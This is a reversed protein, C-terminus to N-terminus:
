YLSWAEIGTDFLTMLREGDESSYSLANFDLVSNRSHCDTCNLAGEKKIGHSLSIFSGTATLPDLDEVYTPDQPNDPLNLGVASGSWMTNGMDILQQTTMGMPSQGSMLLGMKAMGISGAEDSNGTMLYHEKDFAVLNPFQSLVQKEAETLGEPRMFGFAKLQPAMAELAARMTFQDHFEPDVNIGKRDVMMGSLIYRFPYIKANPTEKTAPRFDWAQADHVPEALMSAQGNFWRYSPRQNHEGEFNSYPEFAQTTEDWKPIEALEGEPVGYTSAWARISVGSTWPIHCAECSIYETHTDLTNGHPTSSHCNTCDVEIEPLEWAHMDTVRSGRAIKHGHVEHCQTCRMGAAAHVDHEPEFPTGRKYAPDAQGHEHCRYCSEAAVPEGVSQATELSRDQRWFRLGNEDTELTKEGAYEHESYEGDGNMDYQESHCILCDISDKQAQTYEGTQPDPFPLMTSVHCKGCETSVTHGGFDGTFNVISNSGVLACFRDIMGHSGGGPYGINPNETRWTYHTSGMVEEIKGDHCQACTQAGEYNQILLSHDIAM